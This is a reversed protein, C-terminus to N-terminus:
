TGRYEGTIHWVNHMDQWLLELSIVDTLFGYRRPGRLVNALGKSHAWNRRMDDKELLTVFAVTARHGGISTM